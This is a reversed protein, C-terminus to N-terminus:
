GSFKYLKHTLIRTHDPNRVDPNESKTHTHARARAIPLNFPLNTGTCVMFTSIYVYMCIRTYIYIPGIFLKHIYTRIYVCLLTHAYKTRNGICLICSIDFPPRNCSNFTKLKQWFRYVAISSAPFIFQKIVSFTFASRTVPTEKCLITRLFAGSAERFLRIARKNPSNSAPFNSILAKNGHQNISQCLCTRICCCIVRYFGM